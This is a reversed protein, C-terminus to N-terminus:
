LRLAKCSCLYHSLSVQATGIGSSGHVMEDVQAEQRSCGHRGLAWCMPTLRSTVQYPSTPSLLVTVALLLPSPKAPSHRGPGTRTPAAECDDHAGQRNRVISVRCLFQSCNDRQHEGFPWINFVQDRAQRQQSTTSVESASCLPLNLFNPSM